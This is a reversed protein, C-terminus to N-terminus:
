KLDSCCLENLRSDCQTTESRDADTLNGRADSVRCHWHSQPTREIAQISALLEGLRFPRRIWAISHWHLDRWPCIPEMDATLVIIAPALEQQAHLWAAPALIGPNPPLERSIVLVDVSHNTQLAELCSHQDSATLVEYGCRRLYEAFLERCEEHEEAILIRCPM